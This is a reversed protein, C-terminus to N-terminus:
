WRTELTSESRLYQAVASMDADGYGAAIAQGIVSRNLRTQPMPAAVQDALHLALDLDKEALAMRFAVATNEPDLFADKRYSLFPAAAASAGFVEYAVRRDIGAKEALVLAESLAQSLGYIGTNVALKITSGTGAPGMHFIRSGLARLVPRVSELAEADGGVMITLTGAAAMAVSGSVPADLFRGRRSEVLRCVRRSDDPAVTSMDICIIGPRLGSGLGDRYLSGLADGDSVMTILVDCEAALAEPSPATDVGHLAAFQEAKEATRNWVRLPFGAVVLNTAMPTGMSGLGVFGVHRQRPRTM